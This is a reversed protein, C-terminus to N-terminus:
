ADAFAFFAKIDNPRRAYADERRGPRIQRTIFYALWGPDTPRSDRRGLLGFPVMRQLHSRGDGALPAPDGPLQVVDDAVRQADHDQLGVGRVGGPGGREVGEGVPFELYQALDGAAQGVPLDGRAKVDAFAGDLRVHRM